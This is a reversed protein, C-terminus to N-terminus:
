CRMRGRPRPSACATRATAALLVEYGAEQLRERLAERFSLSDDIVLVSTHTRAIAGRRTRLLERARAAVYNRDYPKGVYEDAGMVLGHLRDKVEAESSLMLVVSHAGQPGARMERLLDVGNGDPLLVDLVVVAPRQAALIERASKLDACALCDFGAEDLAEQLDMRVTLSDDVILILDNM